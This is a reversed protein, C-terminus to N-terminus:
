PFWRRAALTSSPAQFTTTTATRDGGEFGQQHHKEEHMHFVGVFFESFYIMKAAM